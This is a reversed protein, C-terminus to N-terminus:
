GYGDYEQLGLLGTIAPWLNPTIASADRRAIGELEYWKM